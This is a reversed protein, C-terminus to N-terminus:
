LNTSQNGSSLKRNRNLNHLQSTHINGTKVVTSLQQQPSSEQSVTGASGASGSQFSVSMGSDTINVSSSYMVLEVMIFKGLSGVSGRRAGVGHKDYGGMSYGLVSHGDSLDLLSNNIASRKLNTDHGAFRSRQQETGGEGAIEGGMGSDRHQDGRDREQRGQGGQQQKELEAEIRLQEMEDM